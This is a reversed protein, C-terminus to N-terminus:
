AALDIIRHSPNENFALRRSQANHHAGFGASGLVVYGGNGGLTYRDSNQDPAQVGRAITRNCELDPDIEM